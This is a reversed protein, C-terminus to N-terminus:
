KYKKYKSFVIVIRVYVDLNSMNVVIYNIKVDVATRNNGRYDM